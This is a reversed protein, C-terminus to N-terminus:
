QEEVMSTTSTITVRRQGFFAEIVPTLFSYTAHVTVTGVAPNSGSTAPNDVTLNQLGPFEAALSTALQTATLSSNLAFERAGAESAAEVQSKTMFFMGFDITGMVLLLIIPLVLAFEIISQGRESVCKM